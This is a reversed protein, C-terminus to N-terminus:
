HYLILQPYSSHRTSLRQLPITTLYGQQSRHHILRDSIRYRHHLHTQTSSHIRLLTILDPIHHYHRLLKIARIPHNGQDWGGLGRSLNVREMVNWDGMLVDRVNGLNMGLKM